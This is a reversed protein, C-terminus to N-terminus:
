SYKNARIIIYSFPGFRQPEEVVIKDKERHLTVLSTGTHTMVLALTDSDHDEFLGLMRPIGQIHSSALREYISYEHRLKKKQPAKMSFKVIVPMNHTKGGDSLFKLMAGHVVGTAGSAINSTLTVSLYQHPEYSIKEDLPRDARLLYSPSPSNYIGYCM